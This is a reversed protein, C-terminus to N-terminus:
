AAAPARKNWQEINVGRILLWLPFGIEAIAILLAFVVPTAGYGPVLLLAPSDILYACGALIYLGGVARPFYGSTFILCGLMFVHLGFFVIGITFGYSHADLFLLALAQLQDAEFVTLYDAGSLLLLVLYYNLLNVAHIMTMALRFVAAVLSLTKSVPKFLRYLVISLGVEILLIIVESGIGIRFLTGSAQINAATAAADGPVLIQAPVYFHAIIAAVVIVLYLLGAFRALAQPSRAAAQNKLQMNGLAATTSEM